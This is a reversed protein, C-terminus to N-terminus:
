LMNNALQVRLLTKFDMEEILENESKVLELDFYRRDEKLVDASFGRFHELIWKVEKTRTFDDGYLARLVSYNELLSESVMEFERKTVTFRILDRTDDDGGIVEKWGEFKM